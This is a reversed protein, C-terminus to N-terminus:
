PKIRRLDIRIKREKLEAGPDTKSGVCYFVTSPSFQLVPDRNIRATYNQGRCIERLLNLNEPDIVQTEDDDNAM